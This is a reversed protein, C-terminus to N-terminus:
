IWRAIARVGRRISSPPSSAFNLVLGPGPPRGHYYPCVDRLYISEAAARRGLASV